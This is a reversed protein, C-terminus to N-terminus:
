IFACILTVLGFTVGTVVICAPITYRIGQRGYTNALLAPTIAGIGRFTIAEFPVATLVPFILKLIINLILAILITVAFKRKGYLIMVKSLGFNVVLYCILSIIFVILITPIDDCVMALYGPVVIGGCSIGAIEELLLSLVTGIIVALYFHTM